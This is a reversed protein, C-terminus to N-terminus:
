KSEAAAVKARRRLEVILWMQEDQKDYLSTFQDWPLKASQTRLEGSPLVNSRETLVLGFSKEGKESTDLTEPRPRVEVEGGGADLYAKSAEGMLRPIEESLAAKAAELEEKTAGAYKQEFYEPSVFQRYPNGERQEHPIVAAVSADMSPASAQVPLSETAAALAPVRDTPVVPLAVRDEQRAPLPPSEAPEADERAISDSSHFALWTVSGTVAILGLCVAVFFRMRHIRHKEASM